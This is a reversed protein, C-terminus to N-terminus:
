KVDNCAGAIAILSDYKPDEPPIKVAQVVYLAPVGGVSSTVQQQLVKYVETGTVFIDGVCLALDFVSAFQRIVHSRHVSKDSVERDDAASMGHMLEMRPYAIYPDQIGTGLCVPCFDSAGEAGAHGCLGSGCRDCVPGDIRRFLIRAPYSGIPSAKYYILNRRRIDKLLLREAKEMRQPAIPDSEDLVGYSDVVAIKFATLLNYNKPSVLCRRTPICPHELVFQSSGNLGYVTTKVIDAGEAIDWTLLFGSPTEVCNIRRLLGSM